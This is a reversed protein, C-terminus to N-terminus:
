SMRRKNIFNRAYKAPLLKNSCPLGHDPHMILSSRCVPLNAASKLYSHHTAAPVDFPDLLKIPAPHTKGTLSRCGQHLWRMDRPAQRSCRCIGTLVARQMAPSSARLLSTNKRQHSTRSRLGPHTCPWAPYTTALCRGPPPRSNVVHNGPIRETRQIGPALTKLALDSYRTQSAANDRQFVPQLFGVWLWVAAEANEETRGTTVAQVKVIAVALRQELTCKGLQPRNGLVLHISEFRPQANAALSVKLMHHLHIHNLVQHM